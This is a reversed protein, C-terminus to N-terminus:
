VVPLRLALHEGVAVALAQGVEDGPDCAGGHGAGLDVGFPRGPDVHEGLLLRRQDGLCQTGPTGVGDLLRV